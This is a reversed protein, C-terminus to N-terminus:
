PSYFVALEERKEANHTALVFQRGTEKTQM